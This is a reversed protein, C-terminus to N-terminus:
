EMGYEKLLIDVRRKLIEFQPPTLPPNPYLGFHGNSYMGGPTSLLISVALSPVAAKNQNTRRLTIREKLSSLYSCIGM